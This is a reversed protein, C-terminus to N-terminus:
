GAKGMAIPIGCTMLIKCKQVGIEPVYVGSLTLQQPPKPGTFMAFVLDTNELIKVAANDVTTVGRIRNNVAGLFVGAGTFSGALCSLSSPRFLVIVFEFM